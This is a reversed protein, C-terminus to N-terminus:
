TCLNAFMSMLMLVLMVLPMAPMDIDGVEVMPPMDIDIGEAELPALEPISIPPISPISIVQLLVDTLDLSAM